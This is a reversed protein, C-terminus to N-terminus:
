QIFHTVWLETKQALWRRGFKIILLTDLPIKTRGELDVVWPRCCLHGVLGRMLTSGKWARIKTIERLNGYIKVTEAVLSEFKCGGLDRQM